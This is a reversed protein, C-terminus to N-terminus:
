HGESRTGRLPLDAGPCPPLWDVTLPALQQPGYGRDSTAGGCASLEPGAVIVPLYVGPIAFGVNGPVEHMTDGPISPSSAPTHSQPVITELSDPNDYSGDQGHFYNGFPGVPAQSGWWQYLTARWHAFYGLLLDATYGGDADPQPRASWASAVSPAAKTLYQNARDELAPAELSWTVNKTIFSIQKFVYIAAGAPSGSPLLGRLIEEASVTAGFARDVALRLVSKVEYQGLSELAQVSPAAAAAFAAGSFIASSGALSEALETIFAETVRLIEVCGANSVHGSPLTTSCTYGSLDLNTPELPDTYPNASRQGYIGIFADLLSANSWNAESFFAGTWNTGRLTAFDFQTGDGITDNLKAGTLDAGNFNAHTVWAGTLDAGRLNAGIFQAGTLNAGRLNAGRLDAYNFLTGTNSRPDLHPNLNSLNAGHLDAGTLNASILWAGSLDAAALSSQWLQTRTLISGTFRAGDLTAHDWDAGTFNGASWDASPASIGEHLNGWCQAGPGPSCGRPPPPPPLPCGSDDRSGDPMTTRCRIAGTLLAGAMDADRLSADTLDSSTLNAGRLDASDLTASRLNAFDLQVLHLNASRLSTRSLDAGHFSTGPPTDRRLGPNVGTLDAGALNAYALDAYFLASGTLNVDRLDSSRLIAQYFDSRSFDNGRLHAGSFNAWPCDCESVDVNEVTIGPLIAGRCSPQPAPTCAARRPVTRGALIHRPGGMKHRSGRRPGIHGHAPVGRCGRRGQGWPLRARCTRARRVQDKRLTTQSLDTQALDAGRLDAGRLDAHDLFARRLDAGRLDAGRLDAGVLMAQVLRARRFDSHALEGHSLVARTAHVRRFSASPARLGHASVRVLGANSFDVHPAYAESLIAPLRNHGRRRPGLDARQFQASDLDAATLNVGRLDSRRFDGEFLKAFALDRGRLDHGTCRAPSRSICQPARKSSATASEPVAPTSSLSATAPVLSVLVTLSPCLSATRGVVGRYTRRHASYM